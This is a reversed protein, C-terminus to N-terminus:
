IVDHVTDVTGNVFRGVAGGAGYEATQMSRSKGPTQKKTVFNSQVDAAKASTHTRRLAM